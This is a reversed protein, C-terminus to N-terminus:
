SILKLLLCICKVAQNNIFGLIYQKYNHWYIQEIYYLFSSQQSHMHLVIVLEFHDITHDPLKNLKGRINYFLNFQSLMIFSFFVFM